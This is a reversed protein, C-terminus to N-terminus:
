GLVKSLQKYMYHHGILHITCIAVVTCIDFHYQGNILWMLSGILWKDSGWSLLTQIYIYSCNLNIIKNQYICYAIERIVQRIVQWHLFFWRHVLMTENKKDFIKNLFKNKVICCLGIHDIHGKNPKIGSYLLVVSKYYLYKKSSSLRFWTSLLHVLLYQSKYRPTNLAVTRECFAYM